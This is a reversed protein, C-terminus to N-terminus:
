SSYQMCLHKRHEARAGTHTSISLLSREVVVRQYLMDSARGDWRPSDPTRVGRQFAAWGPGILELCDGMARYTVDDYIAWMRGRELVESAWVEGRRSRLEM